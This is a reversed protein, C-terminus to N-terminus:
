LDPLLIDDLILDAGDLYSVNDSQCPTVRHKTMDSLSTYVGGSSSLPTFYLENMEVDHGQTDNVEDRDNLQRMDLANMSVWSTTEIDTNRDNNYPVFERPKLRFPFQESSRFQNWSHHEYRQNTHSQSPNNTQINKM